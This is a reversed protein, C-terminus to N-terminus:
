VMDPDYLILVLKQVNEITVKQMKLVTYGDKLLENLKKIDANFVADNECSIIFSHQKQYHSDFLSSM